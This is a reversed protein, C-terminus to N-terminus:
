QCATAPSIGAEQSKSKTEQVSVSEEVEGAEVEADPSKRETDQIADGEEGGEGEGESASGLVDNPVVAGTQRRENRPRRTPRRQKKADKDKNATTSKAAPATPNKEAPAERAAPAEKAAPATPKAAPAPPNNAAPAENAAPPNKVGNSESTDISNQSPAPSLAQLDELRIHQTLRRTERSRRAKQRRKTEPETTPVEINEQSRRHEGMSTTSSPPTTQATTVPTIEPPTIRRALPEHSVASSPTPSEALPPPSPTPEKKPRRPRKSQAEQLENLKDEVDGDAVDFCTQGTKSVAKFDADYDALLECAREQNWHAAAHLPTWGDDDVANVDADAELLIETVDDYGKACSVHLPSAGFKLSQASAPTMGDRISKADKLMATREANRVEEVDVNRDRLANELLALCENEDEECLDQPIQGDGNLATPDAGHELLFSCIESQDCSAAAHLPTWGENDQANVNAGHEVLIQLMELNGDICCQHHATLGDASCSNPDVGKELLQVTEDIDGSQATALFVIGSPFVVRRHNAQPKGTSALMKGIRLRRVWLM